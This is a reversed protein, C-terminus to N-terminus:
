FYNGRRIQPRARSCGCAAVRSRYSRDRQRVFLTAYNVRIPHTVILERSDRALAAFIKHRLLFVLLRKLRHALSYPTSGAGCWRKSIDRSMGASPRFTGGVTSSRASWQDTTSAACSDAIPGYRVNSHVCEADSEPIFRVHRKQVACTQKHGLASM